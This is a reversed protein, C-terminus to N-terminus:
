RILPETNHKTMPQSKLKPNSMIILSRSQKFMIILSGLGTQNFLDYVRFCLLVIGGLSLPVQMFRPNLSKFIIIFAWVFRPHYFPSFSGHFPDSILTWVWSLSCNIQFQFFQSNPEIWDTAKPSSDRHRLVLGSPVVLGFAFNARHSVSSKETWRLQEGFSSFTAIM